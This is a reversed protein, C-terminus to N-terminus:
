ILIEAIGIGESLAKSTAESLKTTQKEEQASGHLQVFVWIATSSLRIPKELTVKCVVLLMLMLLPLKKILMVSVM